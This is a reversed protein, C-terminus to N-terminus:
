GKPMLRARSITTATAPASTAAAQTNVRRVAPGLGFDGGGGGAAPTRSGRLGGGNAGAPLAKTSSQDSPRAVPAGRHAAM